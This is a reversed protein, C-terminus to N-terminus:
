GSTSSLQFSSGDISQPVANRVLRSCSLRSATPAYSPRTVALSVPIAGDISGFETPLSGVIVATPPTYVVIHFTYRLSSSLNVAVDGNISKFSWANSFQFKSWTSGVPACTPPSERYVAPSRAAAM